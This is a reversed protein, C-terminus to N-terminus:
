RPRFARGGPGGGQRINYGSPVTLLSGSPEGPVINTLNLSFNGTRPDSRLIQVPIQLPPTTSVWTVRVIQIAQTNGITGAPITRTVQTGNATVGNIMQTGLSQTQVQVDGTPAASPTSGSQAAGTRQRLPSQVGTMKQPNLRYVYGAVPDFITIESVTQPGSSGPRTFTTDVRVRGQSDRNVDGQEQNQIQNGNTLTRMSQISLKASFPAGTVTKGAFIAGSLAGGLGGPMRMGFGPVPGQAPQASVTGIVLAITLFLKHFAKM